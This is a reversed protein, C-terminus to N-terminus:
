GATIFLLTYFSLKLTHLEHTESRRLQTRVYGTLEAPCLRLAFSFSSKSPVTDGTSSPRKFNGQKVVGYNCAPDTPVSHRRIGRHYRM